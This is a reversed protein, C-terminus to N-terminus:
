ELSIMRMRRLSPMRVGFGNMREYLDERFQGNRCAAELDRHTAFLLRGEITRIRLDGVAVYERNQFPRLLKPQVWLPIEGVEDLFLSGYRRALGLFGPADALAGTFSGKRHGFLASELLEPSIECLNRVHYDDQYGRVFRRAPEDFPIYRAWGICRAGLDKGTGTEGTLLVSVTDMRAYLGDAVECLDSGMNARYMAARARNASPSLGLIVTAPFYWARRAEYLLALLHGPPHAAVGPHDFLTRYSALYGDYFPVDVGKRAIIGQLGDGIEVSLVLAAARKYLDM